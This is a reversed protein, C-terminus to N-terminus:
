STAPLVPFAHSYWAHVPIGMSHMPIQGSFTDNKFKVVRPFSKMSGFACIFISGQTVAVCSNFAGEWFSLCLCHWEMGLYM